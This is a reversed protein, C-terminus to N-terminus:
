HIKIISISITNEFLIVTTMDVEPDSGNAAIIAPHM